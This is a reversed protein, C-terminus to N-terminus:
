CSPHSVTCSVFAPNEPDEEYWGLIFAIYISFPSFIVGVIPHPLGWICRQHLVASMTIKLETLTAM